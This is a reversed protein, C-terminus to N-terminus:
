ARSCDARGDLLNRQQITAQTSEPEQAEDEIYEGMAGRKWPRDVVSEPFRPFTEAMHCSWCIPLHTELMRQLNEPRAENWQVTHRDRDLLAPPHDHWSFKSIAKGCLACERGVYWQEAIASM